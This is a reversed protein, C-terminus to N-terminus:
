ARLPQDGIFYSKSFLAVDVPNPLRLDSIDPVAKKGPDYSRDIQSILVIALHQRQAYEKLAAIQEALPAHSRKQDMLQLYDVVVADGPLLRNTKEIIHDACINDSCDISFKPDAPIGVSAALVAAERMSLDITFFM